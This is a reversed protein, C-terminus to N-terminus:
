EKVRRVVSGDAARLTNSDVVTIRQVDAADKPDSEPDALEREIRLDFANGQLNAIRYRGQSPKEPTPLLNNRNKAQYRGDAMFEITVVDSSRTEANTRTLSWRGVIVQPNVNVVPPLLSGTPPLTSTPPPPTTVPSTAPPQVTVPSIPSVTTPSQALATGVLLLMALGSATSTLPQKIHNM